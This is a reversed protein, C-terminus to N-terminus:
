DSRATFRKEDNVSPNSFTAEWCNPGDGRQLRVVVPSTLPPSPVGLGCVGGQTRIRAKGAAGPRLGIRKLGALCGSVHGVGSYAYADSTAHWCLENPACPNAPTTAALKLAGSGDLVCLTLDTADTPDGFDSRVVASAGIWRWALHPHRTNVDSRLRLTAKGVAAPECASAGGTGVYRTLAFDDLADGVAVLKGDPQVLLATAHSGISGVPPFPTVVVACPAFTRDLSGDAEYRILGFFPAAYGPQARGAVLIRGDPQIALAFAADSFAGVTGNGFRSTVTGGMGFTADPSGDSSYRALGFGAPSAEGAALIKGGPLLALAAIRGPFGTVVTGASGFTPDLTGDAEYRALAFRDDATSTPSSSSFGGVVIRGDPQLAVGQALDDGGVDTVVTGGTGFTPDLNGSADYRVLTFDFNGATMSYGVTVINGDPQVAVAHAVASDGVATTVTGGSGFSPDLIGGPDYRAVAFRLSGGEDAFGAAVLKGDTQLALAEAGANSGITTLVKGGTGFLPDLAGDPEYRALALKADPLSSGSRGALVIRGDAQLVAANAEELAGLDSVVKGRNGFTPDLDGPWSFGPTASLSFALALLRRRTTKM